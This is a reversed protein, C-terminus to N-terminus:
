TNMENTICPLQKFNLPKQDGDLVEDDISLYCHTRSYLLGPCFKSFRHYHHNVKRTPTVGMAEREEEKQLTSSQAKGGGGGTCSLSQARSCQFHPLPSSGGVAHFLPTISSYSVTVLLLQTLKESGIKMHQALMWLRSNPPLQLVLCCNIPSKVRIGSAKEQLLMEGQEAGSPLLCLGQEMRINRNVSCKPSLGYCCGVSNTACPDCTSWKQKLSNQTAVGCVFYGCSLKKYEM